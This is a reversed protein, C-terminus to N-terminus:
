ESKAAKKLKRALATQRKDTKWQYFLSGNELKFSVSHVLGCDCCEHWYSDDLKYWAGDWLQISAQQRKKKM